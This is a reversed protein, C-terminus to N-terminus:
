RRPSGGPGPKEARHGGDATTGGERTGGGDGRTLRSAERLFRTMGVVLGLMGLGLMWWPRTGAFHDVVAGLFLMGGLAYAVDLGIAWARIQQNRDAAM